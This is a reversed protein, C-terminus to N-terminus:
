EAAEAPPPEEGFELSIEFSQTAGAGGSDLVEIKVLHRGAQAETPIWTVTGDVVDLELGSPGELLRYRFGQDGDPDEVELAYRFVGEDDFAGPQSTIRPPSNVVAIPASTLPDSEDQGDSATVTLVIQDGRKFRSAELLASATEVTRGNVDWRYYYQLEDGDPDMARPSASIDHGATVEGLPEIVVGQLIPALNGVRASARGEVSEDTGDSAVAVVEIVASRGSGTVHLSTGTETQIQGDVRWEYRIQVDDGDPDSTRVKVQIREGPRPTAPSLSIEEIVPAGNLFSTEDTVPEPAGMAAGTPVSDDGGCALLWACAAAALAAQRRRNGM